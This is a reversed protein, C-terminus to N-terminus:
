ATVSQLAKLTLVAGGVSSLFTTSSLRLGGIPTLVTYTLGNALEGTATSQAIASSLASWSLTPSPTITPDDLTVQILANITTSASATLQVFTSKSVPNLIIPTSVGASSLTTSFAM